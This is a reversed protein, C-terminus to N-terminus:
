AESRDPHCNQQTRSLKLSFYKFGSVVVHAARRLSLRMCVRL